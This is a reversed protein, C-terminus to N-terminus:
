DSCPSVSNSNRLQKTCNTYKLATIETHPSVVLQVGADIEDTEMKRDSNKM